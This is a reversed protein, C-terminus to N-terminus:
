FPSVWIFFYALIKHAINTTADRQADSRKVAPACSPSGKVGLMVIVLNAAFEM